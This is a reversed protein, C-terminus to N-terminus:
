AWGSSSDSNVSSDLLVGLSLARMRSLLWDENDMLHERELYRGEHMTNRIVFIGSKM